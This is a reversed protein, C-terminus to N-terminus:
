EMENHWHWFIRLPFCGVEVTLLKQPIGYHTASDFLEDIQFIRPTQKGVILGKLAVRSHSNFLIMGPETNVAKYHPSIQMLLSHDGGFAKTGDRSCM